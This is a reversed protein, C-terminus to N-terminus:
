EKNYKKEFGSIGIWNGNKFEAKGLIIKQKKSCYTVRKKVANIKIDAPNIKKSEVLEEIQETTLGYAIINDNGNLNLVDVNPMVKRIDKLLQGKRSININNRFAINYSIESWVIKEGNYDYISGRDSPIIGEKLSFEKSAELYFDREAFNFYILYGFVIVGWIIFFSILIKARKKIQKM